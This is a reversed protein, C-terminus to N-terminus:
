TLMRGELRRPGERRGVEAVAGAQGLRQVATGPSPQRPGTEVRVQGEPHSCTMAEDLFLPTVHALTCAMMVRSACRWGVVGMGEHRRPYVRMGPLPQRARTPMTLHGLPQTCVTGATRLLRVKRPVPTVHALEAARSARIRLEAPEERGGLASIDGVALLQVGQLLTVCGPTCGEQDHEGGTGCHMQVCIQPWPQVQPCSGLSRM